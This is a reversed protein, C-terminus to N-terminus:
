LPQLDELLTPVLEAVTPHVHVAHTLMTYPKRAYMLDLLVHVVEDCHTGLLSAGLVQKTEADVFAKMFGLTEGQVVARNVRTMPRIAKLAPRGSSRVEAESMGARGLPPDTYINYTRIRDSVKRDEHDLLNAGVIESDNYSTHTFGGKGNCDGLAWIGDAARLHDDVPIYGSRDLKIGARDLGLDGTNPRRGVAVLLHSGTVEGTAWTATIGGQDRRVREVSANTEIVIGEERLFQTMAEVIDDDEVPLLRAGRQLVTVKSGFRRFMQAFELAVYGGGLIILHEPLSDLDLISSNTLYGCDRLGPMDPVIARAGVNLFIKPASILHEGVRMTHPDTFQAAGAFVTCNKLERLSSEVGESSRHIIEDKRGKVRAMDTQVRGEIRVGMDAARAADWAIKASAIWAKSPICGTNVCTGGFRYREVFAIKMGAESLRRALPPAAQGAGVLIADFSQPM